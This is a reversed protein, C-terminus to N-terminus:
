RLGSVADEQSVHEHLVGTENHCDHERLESNANQIASLTSSSLSPGTQEMQEPDPGGSNGRPM